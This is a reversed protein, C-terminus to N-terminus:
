RDRGFDYIWQPVPDDTAEPPRWDTMDWNGKHKNCAGCLVQLNSPEFALEPFFKRPRIHDVNIDGRRRPVRGCRMCRAGYKDLVSRRLANWERTYLVGDSTARIEAAIENDTMSRTREYAQRALAKRELTRILARNRAKNRRGM